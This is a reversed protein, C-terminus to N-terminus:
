TDDKLAREYIKRIVELNLPVPNNKLRETNVSNALICFQENTASLKPLDYRCLLSKFSEIALKPSSVGFADAIVSFVQKLHAEGRTDSCQATNELMYAFTIPLTLAVAYGHPIGFLTTLKYSMAHPATTQTINIARGALNSGLMIKEAALPTNEEIYEKEYKLIIEIATKAFAISEETSNVSWASEIAQCLADLLTCKKQFIPLGFLVESELIAYDPIIYESAVSRKEGKYYIVSFRTSESGTGATTPMAILPIGTDTFPQDYFLRTKDMRCFLKICKAVDIASGGGIAVITDCGESNFLEIGDVVQDYTPNPTFGGFRVFPININCFVKSVSLSDFSNGCVLMFKRSKLQKLLEPIKKASNEGSIIKQAM